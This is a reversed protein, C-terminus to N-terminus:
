HRSGSHRHGDGRVTLLLSESTFVLSVEISKGMPSYKIANSVLNSLIQRMLKPDLKVPHAGESCLYNLRHNVDARGRFEALVSRCLDDLDLTVPNFVFRRAQMQALLLVDEM